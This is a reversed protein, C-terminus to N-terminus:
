HFALINCQHVTTVLIFKVSLSYGESLVLWGKPNNHAIIIYKSQQVTYCYILLFIESRYSTLIKVPFVRDYTPIAYGFNLTTSPDFNAFSKERLNGVIGHISTNPHMSLRSNKQLLKATAVVPTPGYGAM